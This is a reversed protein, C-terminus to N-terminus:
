GAVTVTTNCSDLWVGLGQANLELDMRLLELSDEENLAWNQRAAEERMIQELGALIEVHRAVGDGRAAKAVALMTDILRHLDAGLRDVETVRSFHTLYMAQPRMALMRDISAHMDEPDFQTPTTTPVVFARGDVDLERYSLGFTDGTFFARAVSDWICIHHRAHGPTDFVRLMRSGLHVELGDTAPVIREAPVPVPVLLGYLAFAQEAGYVACTGEWLRSPDIMHRVGRPHVLLDAQPLACMLSGAGGAHDLHIHTLMVWDVAEPAIGLAALAALIRPVSDNSGTDIIAARGDQVIVHIAALQPRGYGSDVAHVGDGYSILDKM